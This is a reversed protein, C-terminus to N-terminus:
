KKEGENAGRVGHRERQMLLAERLLDDEAREDGLVKEQERAIQTTERELNSQRLKAGNEILSGRAQDVTEHEPAAM